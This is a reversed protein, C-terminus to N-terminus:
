LFAVLRATTPDVLHPKSEKALKEKQLSLVFPKVKTKLFELNALEPFREMMTTVIEKVNTEYRECIYLMTGRNLVSALEDGNKEMVGKIYEYINDCDINKEIEGVNLEGICKGLAEEPDKHRISKKAKKSEEIQHKRVDLQTSRCSSVGFSDYSKKDIVVFKTTIICFGGLASNLDM